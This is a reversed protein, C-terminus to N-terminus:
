RNLVGRTIPGVFGVAPRIGHMKQYRIVAARTLPGFFGTVPGSYVGERTLREQLERVDDNRLGYYLNRTFKFTSVGLVQGSEGSGSEEESNDTDPQHQAQAEEAAKEEAEGVAEQANEEDDGVGPAHIVGSGRWIGGGGGSRREDNILSVEVTKPELSAFASDSESENISVTITASDDSFSSDDVGTVAVTQASNWNSSTFTLESKDVTAEASSSSSVSFLVDSAPRSNLVVTFTGSGGNEDISLSGPEVTYGASVTIDTSTEESENGATDTATVTLTHEGATLEESFDCTWNGDSDATTSCITDAGEKIKIESGAEASGSIASKSTENVSPADPAATDKTFEREDAVEFSSGDFGLIGLYLKGDPMSSIDTGPTTFSANVSFPMKNNVFVVDDTFLGYSEDAQWTGSDLGRDSLWDSDVTCGTDPELTWTGDLNVTLILPGIVGHPPHQLNLGKFIVSTGSFSLEAGSSAFYKWGDIEIGGAMAAALAAPDKLVQMIRHVSKAPFTTETGGRTTATIPGMKSDSTYFMAAAKDIGTSEGQTSVSTAESANVYDDSSVSTLSISRAPAAMAFSNTLVFTFVFVLTGAKYTLSRMLMNLKYNFKYCLAM